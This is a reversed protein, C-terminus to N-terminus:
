ITSSLIGMLNCGCAAIGHYCGVPSFASERLTNNFVLNCDPQMMLYYQDSVSLYENSNVIFKADKSVLVNVTLGGPICSTAILCLFLILSPVFWYNMRDPHVM